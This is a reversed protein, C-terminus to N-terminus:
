WRIVIRASQTTTVVLADVPRHHQPTFKPCVMVTDSIVVFRIASNAPLINIKQNRHLSQRGISGGTSLPVGSLIYLAKSSIARYYL